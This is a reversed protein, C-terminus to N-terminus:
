NDWSLIFDGAMKARLRAGLSQLYDVAGTQPLGFKQARGPKQEVCICPRCRNLTEEAGRLAFLEYGECDLKIFDVHTLGFMSDITRMEIDGDGDIWSDGSSGVSTHMSVSTERDGLACEHLLVNVAVVNQRFCERHESIPEFAHVVEFQTALCHSWTGIHGGCDIAARKSKCWRLAADIKKGQYRYRGNSVDNTKRMWDIMHQEHDPFFWGCEQKM